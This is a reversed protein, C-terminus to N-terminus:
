LTTEVKKKMEEPLDRQVEHAVPYVEHLKDLYDTSNAIKISKRIWENM